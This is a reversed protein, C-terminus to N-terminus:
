DEDEFYEHSDVPINLPVTCKGSPCSGEPCESCYVTAPGGVPPPGLGWLERLELFINRLESPGAETLFTIVQEKTIM